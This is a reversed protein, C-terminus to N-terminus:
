CSLYAPLSSSTSCSQGKVREKHSTLKSSRSLLRNRRLQYGEDKVAVSSVNVSLCKAVGDNVNQSNSVQQGASSSKSAFDICEEASQCNNNDKSEIKVTKRPIEVVDPPLRQEVVAKQVVTDSNLEISHYRKRQQQQDVKQQDVQLPSVKGSAAALRVM